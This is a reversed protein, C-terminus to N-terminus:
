PWSRARTLACRCWTRPARRTRRPGFTAATSSCWWRWGRGSGALTTFPSCTLSRAAGSTSQVAMRTRPLHSCQSNGALGRPAPAVGSGAWGRPSRGGGGGVGGEARLEGHVVDCRHQNQELWLLAALGLREQPHTSSVKLAVPAFHAREDLVEFHLRPQKSAHAALLKDRYEFKDTTAVLTVNLLPAAALAAALQEFATATGGAGPM